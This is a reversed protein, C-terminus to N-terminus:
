GRGVCPRVARCGRASLPFDILLQFDEHGFPRLAIAAPLNVFQKKGVAPGRRHDEVAIRGDAPAPDGAAGATKAQPLRYGAALSVRFNKGGKDPFNFENSDKM